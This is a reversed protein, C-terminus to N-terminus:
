LYRPLVTDGQANTDPVVGPKLRELLDAWAQRKDDMDEYIERMTYGDDDDDPFIFGGRVIVELSDGYDVYSCKLSKVRAICQQVIGRPTSNRPKSKNKSLLIRDLCDTLEYDCCGDPCQQLGNRFISPKGCVPCNDYHERMKAMGLFVKFGM